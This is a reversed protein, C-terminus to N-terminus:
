LGGFFSVLAATRSCHAHCYKWESGIVSVRFDGGLRATSREWTRRAVEALDGMGGCMYWAIECCRSSAKAAPFYRFSPGSLSPSAGGVAGFGNDSGLAISPIIAPIFVCITMITGWISIIPHILKKKWPKTRLSHELRRFQSGM